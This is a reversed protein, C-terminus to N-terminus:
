TDIYCISLLIGVSYHKLLDILGGEQSYEYTTYPIKRVSGKFSKDM